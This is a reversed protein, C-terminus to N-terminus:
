DHTLPPRSKPREQNKVYKVIADLDVGRSLTKLGYSNSWFYPKWFFTELYDAYEKRMLRSSVTKLNGVLQSLNLSPHAEFVCHIHDKEGNFEVM